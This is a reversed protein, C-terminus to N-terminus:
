DWKFALPHRLQAANHPLRTVIPMRSSDIDEIKFHSVERGRLRRGLCCQVNGPVKHLDIIAVELIGM